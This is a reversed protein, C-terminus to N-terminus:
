LFFLAGGLIISIFSGPIIVSSGEAKSSTSSSGTSTSGSTSTSLTSTAVAKNGATSSSPFLYSNLEVFLGDNEMISVINELAGKYDPSSSSSSSSSNSSLVSSALGLLKEPDDLYKDLLQTINVSSTLATVNLAGSYMVNSIITGFMDIYSETSLIRKIIYLAVGTDNLAVLTDNLTGIFVSSGLVEGAINGAFSSLSGSTDATSSATSSAASSSSSSNGASVTASAKTTSTTGKVSSTAASKSTTGATSVRSAVSSILSTISATSLQSQISDVASSESPSFVIAGDSTVAKLQRKSNSAPKLYTNFIMALLGENARVAKEIIGAITPQFSTDLLTGDLISQLLGSDQVVGLIQTLNLSSLLSSSGGGSLLSSINVGSILNETANSITNIISDSDAVYDLLEFIIGSKNVQILINAITSEDRKSLDLNGNLKTIFQNILETAEREFIGDDVLQIEFKSDPVPLAMPTAICSTTLLLGTALYSTFKM